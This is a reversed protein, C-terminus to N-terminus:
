HKLRGTFREGWVGFSYFVLASIIISSAALDM